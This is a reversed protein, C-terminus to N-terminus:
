DIKTLGSQCDVLCLFDTSVDCEALVRELAALEARLSNVGEQERGVKYTGANKATNTESSKARQEDHSLLPNGDQMLVYGAGIKGYSESGDRAALIGHFGYSGM